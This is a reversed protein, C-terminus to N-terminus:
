GKKRARELLKSFKKNIFISDGGLRKVFVFGKKKLFDFIYQDDNKMEITMLKIVTRDFDITKLAVDEGGEIDLSLYDIEKLNYLNFLFDFRLCPVKIVRLKHNPSLRLLKHFDYTAALGSLLLSNEVIIFPEFTSCQSSIAGSVIHCSRNKRLEEFYHPNPEVCLGIWGREKEFFRTNSKNKGDVAGAEVFVGDRKNEFVEDVFQDQKYQGDYADLSFSFLLFMLFYVLKFM